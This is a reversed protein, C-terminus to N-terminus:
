LLFESSGKDDTSFSPPRQRLLALIESLLRLLVHVHMVVGLRGQLRKLVVDVTMDM